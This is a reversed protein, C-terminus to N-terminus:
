WRLGSRMATSPLASPNGGSSPRTSRTMPLTLAFVTVGLLGLWLGRTDNGMHSWPTHRTATSM